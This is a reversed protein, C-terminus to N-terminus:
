DAKTLLKEYVAVIQEGARQWSFKEEARRRLRRGRAAREEPNHLLYCLGEVFGDIDGLPAYVGDEGLYERHVASDYAVVPQELAMYNLLKGSGETRSMKPAVGIDGLSLYTPAYRYEVKGTFTMMGVGREVALQQYM